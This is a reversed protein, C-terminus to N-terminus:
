KKGLVAFPSSAARAEEESRVGAAKLAAEADAARPYPDLGLSLTEAVAEGLDVAGGEYFVVDLEAEGLEIEEDPAAIDPQPRFLIRFPESLLAPVPEATAVCSQVVEADLTGDAVVEDGNRTLTADASLSGIAVLDFRRALADREGAEAEISLTRPAGGLTDIRVPRSFEPASM